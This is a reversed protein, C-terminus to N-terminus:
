WFPWSPDDFLQFKGGGSRRLRVVMEALVEHEVLRFVGEIELAEIAPLELPLSDFFAREFNDCTEISLYRLSSLRFIAAALEPAPPYSDRAVKLRLIELSQPAAALINQLANPATVTPPRISDYLELHRLHPLCSIFSGVRRCSYNNGVFEIYLQTLPLTASPPFPPSNPPPLRRNEEFHRIHLSRLNPFHDLESLALPSFPDFASEDDEMNVEIAQIRSRLDLGNEPDEMFCVVEDLCINWFLKYSKVMLVDVECQDSLTVAKVYKRCDPVNRLTNVLIVLDDRTRLDIQRYLRQRVFPVLRKCIPGICQWWYLHDFIHTLAENPLNLLTLRPSTSSPEKLEETTELSM